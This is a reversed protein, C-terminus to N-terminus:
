EEEERLEQNLGLEGRHTGTPGRKVKFHPNLSPGKFSRLCCTSQGCSDFPREFARSEIWTKIVSVQEIPLPRNIWDINEINITLWSSPKEANGTSDEISSTKSSAAGDAEKDESSTLTAAAAVDSTLEKSESMETKKSSESLSAANNNEEAVEEGESESDSSSSSESIDDEESTGAEHEKDLSALSSWKSTTRPENEEDEIDYDDDAELDDGVSNVEDSMDGMQQCGAASSAAAAAASMASM